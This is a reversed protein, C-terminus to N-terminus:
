YIYIYNISIYKYLNGLNLNTAYLVGMINSRIESNHIKIWTTLNKAFDFFAIYSNM